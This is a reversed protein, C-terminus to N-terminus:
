DSPKPDSAPKFRKKVATFLAPYVATIYFGLVAYILVHGAARGTQSYVADKILTMLLAIFPLGAIFRLVKEAITGDTCFRVFSVEIFTGCLIGLAAGSAAYGDEKMRAPDVILEGDKYDMPYSKFAYYLISLVAIICGAAIVKNFLSPDERLKKFLYANAAVLVASAAIAALVDLLTHVGLYNRSFATLIIAAACLIPLVRNQRKYASLAGSGFFSAAQQTHGSPFSYGTAGKIAKDPPTLESFRIWPRYVCATLKALNNFFLGSISNSILWYGLGRDVCWFIAVCLVASGTMALDSVVLFFPTLIHGASERLEQLALLYQLGM